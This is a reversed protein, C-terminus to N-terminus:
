ASSRTNSGLSFQCTGYGIRKRAGTPAKESLIAGASGPCGVVRVWHLQFSPAAVIRRGAYRRM